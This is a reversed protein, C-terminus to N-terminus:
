VLWEYRGFDKLEKRNESLYENMRGEGVGHPSYFALREVVM